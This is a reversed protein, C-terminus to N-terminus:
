SARLLGPALTVGGQRHAANLQEALYRGVQRAGGAGIVPGGFSVNIVTAGDGKSADRASVPAARQGASAAAGASAPPAPTLAAGAAGALAGAAFFGASAAAALGAGPFNGIALMGLAEAAFFAGKGYAQKSLSKLVDAAVGELAQSLSAKGAVFLQINASLAEGVGDFTGKMADAAAAGLSTQEEYLERLHGTFRGHRELRERLNADEMQAIGRADDAAQTAAQTAMDRRMAVAAREEAEDRALAEARHAEVARDINAQEAAQEQLAAAKEERMRQMATHGGGGRRSSGPGGWAAAEERTFTMDSANAEEATFTMDSGRAARGAAGPAVPGAGPDMSTRPANSARYADMFGSASDRMLGLAAASRSERGAATMARAAAAPGESLAGLGAVAVDLGQLLPAMTLAIAGVVVGAVNGVQTLIYAATAGLARMKTNLDDTDVAAGRTAASFERMRGLEAVFAAAGVRQADELSDKYREVADAATDTAQATRGAQAVLASLREQVTHSEGAVEALGAGFRQLGGERGRILAEQLQQVAEATTTGLTVSAAGAVRMLANLETQTLHIDATAFRGAAGMAETEDAFRGASAAAEDFDLGLRASLDDLRAQESALDAVRTAAADVADAFTGVAQRISNFHMAGNGVADFVQAWRSSATSAKQGSEDVKQGARDLADAIRTLLAIADPAGPTTVPIDLGEGQSM